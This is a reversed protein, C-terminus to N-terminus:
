FIAALVAGAAKVVGGVWGGSKGDGEGGSSATVLWSPLWVGYSSAAAPADEAGDVVSGGAPEDVPGFLGIYAVALLAAGALYMVWRPLKM